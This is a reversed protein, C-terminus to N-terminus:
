RRDEQPGGFIGGVRSVGCIVLASVTTAHRGPASASLGPLVPKTM